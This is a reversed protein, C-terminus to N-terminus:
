IHYYSNYKTKIYNRRNQSPVELNKSAREAQLIFGISYFSGLVSTLLLIFYSYTKQMYLGVGVHNYNLQQHIIRHRKLFEYFSLIKQFM